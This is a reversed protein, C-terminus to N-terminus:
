YCPWPNESEKHLPFKIRIYQSRQGQVKSRQITSRDIARSKVTSPSSCIFAITISNPFKIKSYYTSKFWDAKCRTVMALKLIPIGGIKSYLLNCIIKSNWACYPNKISILSKEYRKDDYYKQKLTYNAVKLFIYTKVIFLKYQSSIILHEECFAKM